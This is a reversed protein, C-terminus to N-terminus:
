WFFDFLKNLELNLDKNVPSSLIPFVGPSYVDAALFGIESLVTSFWGFGGECLTTRCLIRKRVFPLM